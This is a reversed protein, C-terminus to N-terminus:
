QSRITRSVGDFYFQQGLRNKVYRRLIVNNAGVCEAVRKMPMNSVFYFPRNIEFGFEKDLGKTAIKGAQDQYLVKWRQNANNTRGYVRVAQGETDQSGTVDLCKKNEINCFHEDAYVFIQFWQSNTSWVQM